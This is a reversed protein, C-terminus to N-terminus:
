HMEADEGDWGNQLARYEEIQSIIDDEPRQPSFLWPVDDSQATLAGDVHCGIYSRSAGKEPATAVWFNTSPRTPGQFLKDLECRSMDQYDLPIPLTQAMNSIYSM